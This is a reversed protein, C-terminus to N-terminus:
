GPFGLADVFRDQFAPDEGLALHTSRALLESYADFGADSALLVAKAGHLAANGSSRPHIRLAPWLGIRKGSRPHVQNGFAGALHLSELDEARLGRHELVSELGAAIAGKALQLERIDSQTLVVPEILPLSGPRTLRGDPRLWGGDLASAVADVLGSGCIGRAAGGGLVSCRLPEGADVRHIAGAAARMGFRIRAGEFAPGAATSACTLSTRDGVMIEGNTGLDILARPREGGCLGVALAGALADSGVFGGAPPLFHVAVDPESWGLDAGRFERWLLDGPEFPVGLLGEIAVGCALDRMATNGVVVAALLPGAEPRASAMLRDVVAALYERICTTLQKRGDLNRATDLRSMLDAGFRAQPNLGVESGIVHGSRLDLLQVAVTTTGLDIAVGLGERASPVSLASTDETLSCGWSDVELTLGEHARLRCGLRWGHDLEHQELADSEAADPATADGLVRVTCGRCSGTAGCPFEVGRAFLEDRLDAGEEVLLIEGLPELRVRVKESM